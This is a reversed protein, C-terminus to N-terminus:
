WRNTNGFRTTAAAQGTPDATRVTGSFYRLTATVPFHDSPYHGAANTRVTRADLASLRGNCLIWDIRGETPQGSFAHYTGGAVDAASAREFADSLAAGDPAPGTLIRYPESDLASNFDGILLFPEGAHQAALARLLRAAEQRAIQGQHDFHTNAVRIRQPPAARDRLEVWTVLRPLAADWGVSGIREPQPSLWFHGQNVREFRTKRYFLPVFEGREAGDERGVGVMEYEPLAARLENVQGLLPEQLGLLDPDFTRIVDVVAARRHEWGNQGDDPNAYRVNFSMVRLPAPACATLLPAVLCVIGSVAWSRNM